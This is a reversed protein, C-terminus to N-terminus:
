SIITSRHPTSIVVPQEIRRTSGVTPQLSSHLWGHTLSTIKEFEYGYHMREFFEFVHGVDVVVHGIDNNGSAKISDSM